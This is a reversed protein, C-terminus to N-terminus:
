QRAKKLWNLTQRKEGMGVYIAASYFAPVYRKRSLRGFSELLKRAEATKGAMAYAYGLQMAMSPSEGSLEYAKKLEAIARRHMKKQTFARGLNFYPLVFNRDLELTRSSEEIAKDYDRELYLIAELATRVVLSLPDLELARNIEAMAEDVRDVSHLYLAYWQHAPVYSPNLELARQFCREAGEFDWEYWFRAQGISAQAEALMPDYELARSAASIAKPAADNPAMAGVHISSLMLHCDALGAYAPAYAPDLVIAEEFHHIAKKLAEEDRRNWHHRGRLYASYAEPHMPRPAPARRTHENTVKITTENAVAAAVETQVEIIDKLDRDFVETWVSTQDSASVVAVSIRVQNGSRRVSGEVVYDVRLERAIQDIGKTSRKYKMASARAIVGLRSPDIRGLQAILEETLGDSFYEQEPDGSLNRLPLIVIVPRLRETARKVLITPEAVPPHIGQNWWAELESEYAYVSALKDHPKRHVPLKENREWRQVTRVDKQL